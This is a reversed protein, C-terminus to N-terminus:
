DLRKAPGFSMSNHAGAEWVWGASDGDGYSYTHEGEVIMFSDFYVSPDGDKGGSMLRLFNLTSSPATYILTSRHQGATTGANGSNADAGANVRIRPYGPFTDVITYDVMMAYTKGAEVPWNPFVVFTDTSSAYIPTVQMSRSGSTVGVTSTTATARTTNSVDVVSTGSIHEFSPNVLMNKVCEGEQTLGTKSTYASSITPDQANAASLCFAKPTMTNNVIYTYTTDSTDVLDIDALSSPYTDVHTAAYSLVKKGARSAASQVAVARARDQIGAYVLITITALIAIVVIVILLEVITFGSFSGSINRKRKNYSVINIRAGVIRM